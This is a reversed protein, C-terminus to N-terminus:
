DGSLGLGNSDALDALLELGRLYFLWQRQPSDAHLPLMSLFLSAEIISIEQISFGFEELVRDMAAQATLRDPGVSIDFQEPGIQKIRYIGHVGADFMGAYSHRLKAADYRADGLAGEGGFAGHPDLLRFTQAEVAYLINSFNLDGHIQAPRPSNCLPEILAELLRLADPGATLARGNVVLQSSRCWIESEWWAMFRYRTKEIYMRRCRKWIEAKTSDGHDAFQQWLFRQVRDVIGALLEGWYAGEGPSYLYLEALTPYSIYEMSIESLDESVGLVRPFLLSSPADLDRMFRAQAIGAADLSRKRAVGLEDVIIESTPRTALCTRTARAIASLDGLDVWKDVVICQLPTLSLYETLIESLEVEDVFPEMAIAEAAADLSERDAFYYLGVAVRVRDLPTARANHVAAVSGDHGEEVCCWRRDSLAKAVSIWSSELPPISAVITDALLLLVPRGPPIDVLARAFAAGPGPSEAQIQVQLKMGLAAAVEEGLTKVRSEHEPRCVVLGSQIGSEALLALQTVLVPASRYRVQTKGLGALPGLRLGLGAALIVAFPPKGLASLQESPVVPSKAKMGDRRQM